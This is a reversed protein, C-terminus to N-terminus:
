EEKDAKGSFVLNFCAGEDNKVEIKCNHQDLIQRVIALGLGTGENKSTIFPDFIESLIEEPVGPGSDKIQIKLGGGSQEEGSLEIVGQYNMAQLANIFLNHFVQRLSHENGVVFLNDSFTTNVQVDKHPEVLLKLQESILAFINVPVFDEEKHKKAFQLINSVVHELAIFSKDIEALLELSQTQTSLDEKLLSLFLKMSGLPNRIEHAIAAATEGLAALKSSRRVEEEKAALQKRLAESEAVVKDYKQQLKDSAQSFNDFAKKLEAPGWVTEENLRDAM